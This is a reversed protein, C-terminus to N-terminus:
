LMNPDVVSDGGVLMLSIPDQPLPDTYSVSQVISEQPGKTRHRLKMVEQQVLKATDAVPVLKNSVAFTERTIM